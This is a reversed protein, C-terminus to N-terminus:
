HRSIARLVDLRAARHAPGAAAVIGAVAALAAVIVLQTVPVSLRSIGESRLAAVVAWGLLVGVVLGEVTGLLAIIVSEGRVVGRLQRRTMGVARLLGLEHTREHISLALTNAIGILAIVLALGLLGYMLGLLQDIQAEQEHKYETRDMLTANPYDALVGEVAHRGADASVGPALRAFVQVDLPSSFNGRAAARPLLYDGALQRAGYVAGVVFRHTGTTPFTISLRDGVRLHDADAVQRSVAVGDAPLTALDGQQPDLDFLDDLHRTDVALVTLGSGDVSMSGSQVGTASAVEPLATLKRSLAPSFGSQGGATGGGGVVFDARMAADVVSGISTKTSSAMVSILTVLAVGIMLAAAAASTRKPNRMANSRALRGTRWRLPAGIVRCLPRALAPGAVAIAIFVLAAGVGVYTMRRSVDALLGILLLGAGAALVAFGSAARRVVHPEDDVEVERLAAVPPVRGAKWAPVLAAALSISVGVVMSVVATRVTIVLGSSPIAFGLAALMAKLGVALAVGCGLGVVSAVLGILLAEGLVSGIIQTRSAGVARLVALERMRQAVVISFTNFILFTGVFLAIGAFVLLFTDFFSLAQHIGDQGEATVDAGTVVELSPDHLVSRVREAMQEQSIGPAAAIDIEGIHGPQALVREATPLYFLTISAGLPSDASGWRVIGSITYRRPQQRTLVTVRDGVRLDGVDASHKDIAVEGPTNPPSGEVFRYPAMQDAGSTWAEGLTPAGAAPNGIAKGDSGVLQAYGEVGLGVTTVGPVARVTPVLGADILRRQSTFNAGPTYAQKARVVVSTNSYVDTFLGDFTHKITDTFVFTGAMFAVGLVVALATLAYRVKHALLGTLTVRWM